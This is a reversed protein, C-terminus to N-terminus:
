ALWRLARWCSLQLRFGTRGFDRVMLRPLRLRDTGARVLGGGVICARKFAAGAVVEVTIDDHAGYPYSFSTVPRDLVGELWDKSTQIEQEQEERTLSPLCPHNCTHAGIEVFPSQAVRRLEDVTLMRHSECAQREPPHVAHFSKLTKEVEAPHLSRLKAGLAAIAARNVQHPATARIARYHHELRDWWFELGASAGVPYFLTAPVKYKELLPLANQLFDCYGDDFTIAVAGPETEIQSLPVVRQKSLIRLHDEFNALSVSLRWPDFTTDNIRHYMLIAGGSRGRTQKEQRRLTGLSEFDEEARNRDEAIAKNSRMIRVLRTFDIKYKALM